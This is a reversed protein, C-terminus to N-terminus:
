LQPALGAVLWTFFPSPSTPAGAPIAGRVVGREALDALVKSTGEIVEMDAVVDRAQCARSVAEAFPHGEVMLNEMIAFALPTLNMQRYDGDVDRYALVHAERAEPETRDNEDDPLAHVGSDFRALRASGDFAITQDAALESAPAPAEPDLDRQGVYVDFEFLEYRMLDSLFAPLSTDARMEPAAWVAFEYAVDRLIQSTPLREEFFRRAYGAYADTDELRSVTRPLQAAIAEKLTGRVLKRYIQIRRLDQRALAAADETAVELDRYGDARAREIDDPAVPTSVAHLVVRQLAVLRDHEDRSGPSTQVKTM